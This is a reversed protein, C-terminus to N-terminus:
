NCGQEESFMEVDSVPRVRYFRVGLGSAEPDVFHIADDSVVNPDLSEWDIMNISLELRFPVGNFEDLRLHFTRDTLRVPGPRKADNDM